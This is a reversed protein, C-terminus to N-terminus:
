VYVKRGAFALEISEWEPFEFAFGCGACTTEQEDSPHTMDPLLMDAVVRLDDGRVTSRIYFAPVDCWVCYIPVYGVGGVTIVTVAHTVSIAM